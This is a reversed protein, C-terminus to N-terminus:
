KKKGEKKLNNGLAYAFLGIGGGALIMMISHASVSCLGLVTMATLVAAFLSVSLPTKKLRKLMQIGAKLILFAVACKIGVFAYSVYKNMMFTELFLSILFIIAFSPLVVGLTALLSGRIGAKKYGVYTALNIAIPGPTSEAIATIELLEGDGIWKRKEVVEEKIQGIMAYGGGFTFLGIKLFTVFVSRLMPREKGCAPIIGENYCAKTLMVLSILSFRM